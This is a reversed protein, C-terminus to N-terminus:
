EASRKADIQANYEADETAWKRMQEEDDIPCQEAYQEPYKQKMLNDIAQAALSRRYLIGYLMVKQMDVLMNPTYLSGSEKHRADEAIQENLEIVRNEAASAQETYHQKKAALEDYSANELNNIISDVWLKDPASNAREGTSVETLEETNSNSALQRQEAESGFTEIEEDSMVANENFVEAEERYVSYHQKHEM